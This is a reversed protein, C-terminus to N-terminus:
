LVYRRFNKVWAYREEETKQDTHIKEITPVEYGTMRQLKELDDEPFVEGEFERKIWKYVKAGNPPYQFPTDRSVQVCWLTCNPYKELLEEWKHWEEDFGYGWEMELESVREVM